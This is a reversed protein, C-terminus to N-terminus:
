RTVGTEALVKPDSLVPLVHLDAQYDPKVIFSKYQTANQDSGGTTVDCIFKSFKDISTLPWAAYPKVWWIGYYDLYSVTKYDLPRVNVVRGELNEFSGFAPVKTYLIQPTAVKKPNRDKDWHGWWYGVGGEPKWFQDFAEFYVFTIPSRNGILDELLRYYDNQSTQSLGSAGNSPLGTEALVVKKSTRASLADHQQKTWQVAQAPDTIGEWYPHANAFVWDVIAILDDTYAVVPERTTVPKGTIARLQEIKPRLEALTYRAFYIGETGFNYADVYPKANIANTWEESSTLSWIGAIVVMGKEKAIRPIEKLTGDLGYTVLCNFNANYLLTIDEDISAVSPFQPPKAEPNFNTPAYAICRLAADNFFAPTILAVADSGNCDEDIGNNPIETTPLTQNACTGLGSGDAACTKNGPKCIGINQTGAPGTYCQQVSGPTCVLAALDSGNCDQDIGDGRVEIADPHISKDADNCDQTSCLGGEASYGDKDGDTCVPPSRCGPYDPTQGEVICLHPKLEGDVCTTSGSDTIDVHSTGNCYDPPCKVADSLSSNNAWVREGNQCSYVKCGDVQQELDNNVWKKEGDVCSYVKCEETQQLVDNNAWHTGQEGDCSWVKCEDQPLIINSDTIGDCDNDRGDCVEESPLGAIANCVTDIGDTSCTSHGERLCEGAGVSCSSKDYGEDVENNCDNDKNDCLEQADPHVFSSADDCDTSNQAYGQPQADFQSCILPNGYGDSDSDLCYEAHNSDAPKREDDTGCSGYLMNLSMLAGIGIRKVRSILSNRHIHRPASASGSVISDLSLAAQEM